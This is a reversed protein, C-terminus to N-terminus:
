SGEMRVAKAVLGAGARLDSSWAVLVAGCRSTSATCGKPPVAPSAKRTTTSTGAYL